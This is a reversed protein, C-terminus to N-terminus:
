KEKDIKDSSGPSFHSLFLGYQSCCPCTEEGDWRAWQGCAQAWPGQLAWRWCLCPCWCGVFLYMGM